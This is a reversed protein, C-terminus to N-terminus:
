VARERVILKLEQTIGPTPLKMPQYLRRTSLKENADIVIVDFM